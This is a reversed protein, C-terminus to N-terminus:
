LYALDKPSKTTGWKQHENTASEPFFALSEHLEKELSALKDSKLEPLPSTTEYFFGDETKRPAPKGGCRFRNKSMNLVKDQQKKTLNKFDCAEEVCNLKSAQIAAAEELSPLQYKHAIQLLSIPSHTMTTLFYEECRIVLEEIM